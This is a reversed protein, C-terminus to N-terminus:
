WPRGALEQKYQQLESHVARWVPGPGGTGVTAGDLRTVAIVERTAASLM